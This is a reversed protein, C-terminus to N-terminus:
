TCRITRREQMVLRTSTAVAPLCSAEIQALWHSPECAGGPPLLVVDAEARRLADVYNAPLTYNDDEARGYTTIGIRVPM